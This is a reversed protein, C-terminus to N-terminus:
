VCIIEDKHGNDAVFCFVFNTDETGRDVDVGAGEGDLVSIM